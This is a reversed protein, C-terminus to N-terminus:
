NFIQIASVCAHGTLLLSYAPRQHNFLEDLSPDLEVLASGWRAVSLRYKGRQVHNITFAGNRDTAGSWVLRDGLYLRVLASRLPKGSKRVVSGQIVDGGILANQQRQDPCQAAVSAWALVFSLLYNV